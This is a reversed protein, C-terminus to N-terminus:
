GLWLFYRPVLKKPRTQHVLHSVENHTLRRKLKQEQDRVARDREKSRKSFQEILKPSVGEVEFADVTPRTRYGLRHLHGVLENRYVETGYHIADFLASTQLAKWRQERPDFTANFLVFHTHLQPDLARSTTHLFAAGVLNGTTRDGEQIGDKRIRTAAFQELERLALQSAERHAQLIRHDGMTVTLISVSKPPACQFDFFLRRERAMVRTLRAGTEPHQNDCLRLFAERTVMGGQDLGLKQAGVGIWQGAQQGPAIDPAYYDNRSLHEDFYTTAATRKKQSKGTFM